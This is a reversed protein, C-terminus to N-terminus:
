AGGAKEDRELITRGSAVDRGIQEALESASPFRREDRLREVFELRLRQGYVDLDHDLLHAEVRPPSVGGAVAGPFTPNRGVNVMAMRRSGGVTAWACYVGVCPFTEAEARLNATPWGLVRGRGDGREVLGELYFRRGLLRAALAVDGEALARRIRSSSVAHGEVKVPPVVDVAFGLASGRERLFDISGRKGVGFAFDYGVVVASPAFPKYIWDLVFRDPEQQSFERSFPEVILWEIGLREAERRQDELSFIRGFPSEPRLARLPHPDFTMMCAPGGAERARELVARVLERHGLHLGDFNGITLAAKSVPQPLNRVGPIIKM